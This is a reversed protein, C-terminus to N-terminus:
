DVFDFRYARAGRSCRWQGAVPVGSVQVCRFGGPTRFRRKTLGRYARLDRAAKRCTMNRASTIVRLPGVPTRCDVVAAAGAQPAVPGGPAIAAVAAALLALSVRRM